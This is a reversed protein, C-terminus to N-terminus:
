RKLKLAVGMNNGFAYLSVSAMTISGWKAAEPNKKAIERMLFHFGVQVGGRILLLRGLSPRRGYISSNTEYCDPNVQLCVETSAVDLVAAVDSAIIYPMAKRINDREVEEKSPPTTELVEVPGYVEPEASSLALALLMSM